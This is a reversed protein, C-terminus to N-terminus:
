CVTGTALKARLAASRLTLCAVEAPARFRVPLTAGLGRSVYLLAGEVEFFGSLYKVGIKGAMFPTLRRFYVQGGHTHGSLILAPRFPHLFDASMPDHSLVVKTAGEPVGLFAAKADHHRTVSDDVGVLHLTGGVVRVARHENTLVEVGADALASRVRRAGSWHDHNGLTAYAPVELRGLAETLAPLPRPSICVYDGTLVVLDPRLQNMMEVAQLLRRPKVGTRLHIDSLQGIRLGDLEPAVRDSVVEHACLQPPRPARGTRRKFLRKLPM